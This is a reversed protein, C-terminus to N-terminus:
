ATILAQCGTAFPMKAIVFLSAPTCVLAVAIQESRRTGALYRLERLYDRVGHM